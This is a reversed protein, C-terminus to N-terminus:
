EEGLNVKIGEVIHTRFNRINKFATIPLQSGTPLVIKTNENITTGAPVIVWASSVKESGDESIKTKERYQCRVSVATSYTINQYGDESVKQSILCSETLAMFMKKVGNVSTVYPM